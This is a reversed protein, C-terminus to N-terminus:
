RSIGGKRRVANVVMEALEAEANRGVIAPTNIHVIVNGGGNPTINGSTSPTFIEPGREGVLYSSNATVPGGDARAGQIPMGLINVESPALGGLIDTLKIRRNLGTREFFRDVADAAKVVAEAIDKFIEAFLKLQGITAGATGLWEFQENLGRLEQVTEPLNNTIWEAFTQIEPLAEAVITNKVGGLSRELEDLTDTLEVGADVAEDSLVLGLERARERLEDVSGAQQNLLPVLDQGNRGFLQQAIDAKQIGDEMEQLRTVTLAFADEQSMKAIEQQSIGLKDFEEAGKGAGEVAEQMRQALTKMGIQLSDISVGAQSLVFEWEQFGERSLGLRQSLKDIRDTAETTDKVMKIAVAGAAAYMATAVNFASKFSNALSKSKTTTSDIEKNAKSSDIAIEGFLKFIPKM